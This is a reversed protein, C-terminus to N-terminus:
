KGMMLFRITYFQNIKHPNVEVLLYLIDKLTKPLKVMGDDLYKDDIVLVDHKGVEACGVEENTIKKFLIDVKAGVPKRERKEDSELTRDNNRGMVSSVSTHEGLKAKVQSTRFAKYVFRWLHHLLDGESFDVTNLNEENEFLLAVNM